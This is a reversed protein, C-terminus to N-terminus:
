VPHSLLKAEYTLLDHKRDKIYRAPNGTFIGWAALDKTVLSLAGVAVGDGLSVGPLIVAGAGVIVHRGVSVRDSQVKRFEMPITPNTMAEGSYDDSESYISVRSSLGSFDDLFIGAGGFLGCYAAIHVHRGIHLAGSLLCFDDIRVHDGITQREAGYISCKRSIKVNKGIFKFGLNELDSQDYFSTKNSM